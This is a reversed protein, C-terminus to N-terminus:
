SENVVGLMDEADVTDTDAGCFVPLTSGYPRLDAFVDEIKGLVDEAKRLTLRDNQGGRYTWEDIAEEIRCLTDKLQDIQMDKRLGTMDGGSVFRTLMRELAMIHAVTM